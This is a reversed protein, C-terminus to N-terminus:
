EGDKVQEPASPLPMWHSVNRAYFYDEESPISVFQDDSSFKNKIFEYVINEPESKGEAVILCYNGYAPLRDGVSIWGMVSNDMAWKMGHRFVDSLQSPKGVALGHNILGTRELETLPIRHMSM